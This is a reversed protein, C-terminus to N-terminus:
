ESRREKAGEVRCGSDIPEVVHIAWGPEREHRVRDALHEAEERSGVLGFVSPGSGSMLIATAGARAFAGRVRAVDPCCSVVGPELDNRLAGALAGVGGERIASCNLKTFHAEDTLGIRVWNYAEQASVAVAPTVLVLAFGGLPPWWELREGRGKGRASGGRLMFPVDSGIDAALDELRDDELALSFLARMGQLVAAADASGGGLGAAVPIRKDIHIGVPPCGTAERLIEAARWALNRADLPIPLGSSTVLPGDDRRELSVTDSLSVSQFLTDIEHFGDPRRSLVRLALNVKAFAEVQVGM